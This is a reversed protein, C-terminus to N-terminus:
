IVKQYVRFAVISKADYYNGVNSSQTVTIQTDVDAPITNITALTEWVNSNTNFIQIIIPSIRTDYTSRGKWTFVPTDTSNTWDKKYTQVVYESGYQVFYDGDDVETNM